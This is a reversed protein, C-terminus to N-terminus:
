KKRRSIKVKYIKKITNKNNKIQKKNTKKNNKIQKKNTKKITKKNTKKGGRYNETNLAGLEKYSIPTEAIYEKKYKKEYPEVSAITLLEEPIDLLNEELEM